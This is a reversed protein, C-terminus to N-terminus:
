ASSPMRSQRKDRPSPSTYLLCTCEADMQAKLDLPMYGYIIELGLTPTSKAFAGLCLLAMRQARQLYKLYLTARHAWVISSYTLIPRVMTEYIWKMQKLGPGWLKGVANRAANLIRIAKKSKEIIHQKFTLKCDLTVGLYKVQNEYSLDNNGLKLNRFLGTPNRKHSFIVAVTKEHSFTLGKSLGWANAKNIARQM